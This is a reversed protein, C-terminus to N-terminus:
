CPRSRDRRVRARHRRSEPDPRRAASVPQGGGVVGREVQEDQSQFTNYGCGALQSALALMLFARWQM